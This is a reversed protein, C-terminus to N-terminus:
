QSVTKSVNLGFIRKKVRTDESGERECDVFDEEVETDSNDDIVVNECTTDLPSKNGTSSDENGKPRISSDENGKSRISSDENGKSRISLDLPHNGYEESQSSFDLPELPVYTVVRQGNPSLGLGTM